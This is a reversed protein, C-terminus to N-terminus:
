VTGVLFWENHFSLVRIFIYEFQVCAHSEIKSDYDWNQLRLIPRMKGKVLFIIILTTMFKHYCLLHLSGYFHGAYNWKKLMYSKTIPTLFLFIFM